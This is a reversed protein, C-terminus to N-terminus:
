ARDALAAVAPLTKGELIELFAGGGTSLYGMKDQLGFSEIATVTDGGCVITFTDSDGLAKALHVTGKDFPKVEFLGMPGNWVVTKGKTLLEAYQAQSQEAMDFISEDEQVDDISCTRATSSDNLDKAVVVDLPLPLAINREEAVKIIRKAEEIFDPEALSKGIPYGKALLFTNAIGGAVVLGDVFNLLNELVSLKTSVKSGGVIAYLPREPNALIKTAADMEALMLPGAIAIPAQRIVSESSANARHSVGFADMIFVDCLSAFKAGLETNNKKEGKLFRVNELLTVVGEQAEVNLDADYEHFVVPSGLLEELRKAVPRLSFKEEFVGEEPRGLHSMVIIRAKAELAKKITPIVARIRKDGTIVGEKIPVNLDCRILVKKQSLDVNDMSLAKM